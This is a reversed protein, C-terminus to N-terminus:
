GEAKADEVVFRVALFELPSDFALGDSGANEM